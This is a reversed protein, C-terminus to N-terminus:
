DRCPIQYKRQGIGLCRWGLALAVSILIESLVRAGCTARCSDRTKTHAPCDAKNDADSRFMRYSSIRWCTRSCKASRRELNLSSTEASPGTGERLQSVELLRRYLNQCQSKCLLDLSGGIPLELFLVTPLEPLRHMHQRIQYCRCM